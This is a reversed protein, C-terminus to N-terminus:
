GSKPSIATPLWGLIGHHAMAPRRGVIYKDTSDASFSSDICDSFDTTFIRKRLGNTYIRAMRPCFGIGSLPMGVSFNDFHYCKKLDTQCKGSIKMLICDM